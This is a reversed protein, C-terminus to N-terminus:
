PRTRLYWGLAGVGLVTLICSNPYLYEPRDTFAQVWTVRLLADGLSSHRVVFVHEAPGVGEQRQQISVQIQFTGDGNLQIGSTLQKGLTVQDRQEWTVTISCPYFGTVHRILQGTGPGQSSPWICQPSP